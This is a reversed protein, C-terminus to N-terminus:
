EDSLTGKIFSWQNMVQMEVLDDRANSQGLIEPLVNMTIEEKSAGNKYVLKDRCFCGEKMKLM